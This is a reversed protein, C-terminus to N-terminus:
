LVRLSKLYQSIGQELTTRATWGLFRQTKATGAYFDAGASAKVSKLQEAYGLTQGMSTELVECVKWVPISSGTGVNYIGSPVNKEVACAVADAVDDVYVFDNASHPTRVGPCEGKQITSALMPILSGGRQGPGYVYFFRQWVFRADNQQALLMGLDYLSRKAWTFYSVNQGLDDESCVGFKKGYEFCSGAFVVKPCCCDEILFRLWTANNKLNKLSMGYGLDPIGEWGLLVAVDPAIEKIQDAVKDLAGLDGEVVKVRDPLTNASGPRVLAYVEDESSLFKELRVGIFGTAGTVFVKM